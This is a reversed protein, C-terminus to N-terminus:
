LWARKQAPLIVDEHQRSPVKSNIIRGTDGLCAGVIVGYQIVLCYLLTM